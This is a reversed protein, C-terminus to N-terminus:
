AARGGIGSTEPAAARLFVSEGALVREAEDVTFRLHDAWGDALCQLAHRKGILLLSVAVHWALREADFVESATDRYGRRVADICAIARDPAMGGSGALYALHAVVRGADHLPDGLALTEWGAFGVAGDDFVIRDGTPEGHIPVAAVQRHLDCRGSVSNIIGTLRPALDPLAHGVGDMRRTLDACELEASWFSSPAISSRHLAALARGVRNFADRASGTQALETLAMGDPETAVFTRLDRHYNIPVPGHFGLEGCLSAAQVKATNSFAVMASDDDSLRGLLDAGGDRHRWRVVASKSPEYRDLTPALYSQPDPKEGLCDELLVPLADPRLVDALGRLDTGNPLTWGVLNRDQRVFMPPGDCPLVPLQRGNEAVSEALEPLSFVHLALDLEAAPGSESGVKARVQLWGRVFPQYAIQGPEVRIDRPSRGCWDEWSQALLDSLQAESRLFQLGDFVPDEVYSM